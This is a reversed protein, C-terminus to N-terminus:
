RHILDPSVHTRSIPLVEPLLWCPNQIEPHPVPTHVPQGRGGSGAGFARIGGHWFNVEDQDIGAGVIFRYDNLFIDNAM